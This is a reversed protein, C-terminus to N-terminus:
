RNLHGREPTTFDTLLFHHRCLFKYHLAQAEEMTCVRGVKEAWMKACYIFFFNIMNCDWCLVGNM